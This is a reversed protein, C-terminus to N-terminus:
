WNENLRKGTKGTGNKTEKVNAREGAVFYDAVREM